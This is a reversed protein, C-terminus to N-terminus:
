KDIDCIEIIKVPYKTYYSIHIIKTSILIILTFVCVFNLIRYNIKLGLQDNYFSNEYESIM